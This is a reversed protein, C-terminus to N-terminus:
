DPMEVLEEAMRHHLQDAREAYEELEQIEYNSIVSLTNERRNFVANTAKYTSGKEANTEVWSEMNQLYEEILDEFTSNDGQIRRRPYYSESDFDVTNIPRDAKQAPTPVLYKNEILARMDKRRTDEGVLGSVGFNSELDDYFATSFARFTFIEDTNILAYILPRRVSPKKPINAGRVDEKSLTRSYNDELVNWDVVQEDSVSKVSFASEMETYYAEFDYIASEIFKRHTMDFSRMKEALDTPATWHIVRSQNCDPDIPHIDLDNTYKEKAVRQTPTPDYEFRVAETLVSSMHSESGYKEVSLKKLIDHAVTDIRTSVTEKSEKSIDINVMKYEIYTYCKKNINHFYLM